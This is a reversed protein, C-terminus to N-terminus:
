RRVSAANGEAPRRRDRHLANGARGARVSQHLAREYHPKFEDLRVEDSSMVTLLNLVRGAKAHEVEIAQTTDNERILRTGRITAPFLTPWPRFDRYIARCASPRQMFSSPRLPMARQCAEFRPVLAPRTPHRRSPLPAAGAAASPGHPSARRAKLRRKRARARRADGAHARGAVGHEGTSTRLHRRTRTRRPCIVAVKPPPPMTPPSWAPARSPPGPRGRLPTTSAGRQRAVRRCGGLRRTVAVRPPSAPPSCGSSAARRGDASVTLLRLARGGRAVVRAFSRRPSREIPSRLGASASPPRWGVGVIPGSAM